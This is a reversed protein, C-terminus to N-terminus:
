GALSFPEVDDISSNRSPAIMGPMTSSPVFATPRPRFHLAVAVTTASVILSAINSAILAVNGITLGYGFWLVFGVLLVSLYGVSVGASSRARLIARIQLLPALAMLLGWCGAAVAFFSSM